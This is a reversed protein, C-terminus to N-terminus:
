ELAFEYMVGRKYRENSGAIVDSPTTFSTSIDWAMAVQDQLVNIPARLILRIRDTKIAMGMNTVQFAGIKGTVGAETVFGKEDLGRERLAGRGTIIARGIRVASENVTEAGIDESYKANTGTATQAGANTDDPCENNLIFTIGSIRKIIGSQYEEGNFLGTEARQWAPDAFLQNNAANPMHCHYTGDEHPPVNNTRLKGALNIFDQLLTTDGSSIADVTAGGGARLVVPRYISLVPSRVAVTAGVTTSLLLTGPGFPDDSNDPTAGIVNKAVGNLLIPLPNSSSVAAPKANQGRIVVDTFGNLAAVRISTDSSAAQQILCTHGSLYSKYLANRPIRNLSQGANMGLAHVESLFLSSNAVVSNPMYVQTAAAYRQLTAVWQEYALTMVAPDQSAPIPKTVPSYQGRRTCVYETGSNEPWEEWEADQRFLLEPFLSDHFARELLGKQVLDDVQPPIGLVLPM